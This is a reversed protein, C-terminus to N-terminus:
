KLASDSHKGFIMVAAMLLALSVLLSVLPNAGTATLLYGSLISVMGVTLAYPLQTRVHDVHDAGSAMSSMITTDSIPSCHDGFVAGSLIAAISAFLVPNFGSGSIGAAAATGFVLPIVIPTLISLTGWSTGTSFSIGMALLFVLVPLFRFSLTESLTHVLYDATHLESCIMGISWALVLILMAPMMSKIGNVLADMTERLSLMRRSLALVAAAICGSFSGWLLATFSNSEMIAEFIGPSSVGAEALATRGTWILGTFSVAIVVVIPIIGNLLSPAATEAIDLNDSDITSAPSATDSSLKGTSRARLEARHMFSYDRGTLVIMLVFILALIPYFSYPISSLFTGLPNRDVGMSEFTQGILSIQFGIWSTVVALSTIPAATSDVIYSLKERSIKLRDTLPRTSNGVILTNTYDDFFIVIGMVWVMLQARRANTAFRTLTDVIGRMGGMRSTIGVMGGLLLTFIIISINDIGAGEGAVANPVYYGIIDLLSFLPSYGSIIFSGIWVGALLAIVVQRFILAFIIAVLPPIVALLGHITFIAVDVSGGGGSIVMTHNGTSYNTIEIGTAAIEGAIGREIRRGDITVTVTDDESFSEKIVTEPSYRYSVGKITLVRERDAVQASQPLLIVVVFVLIVASIRIPVPYKKDNIINMSI